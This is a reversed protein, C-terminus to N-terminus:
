VRVIGCVKSNHQQEVSMRNDRAKGPNAPQLPKYTCSEKSSYEQGVAAREGIPTAIQAYSPTQSDIDKGKAECGTVVVPSHFSLERAM